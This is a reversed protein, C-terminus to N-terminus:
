TYYAKPTDSFFSPVAVFDGTHISDLAHPFINALYQSFDFMLKCDSQMGSPVSPNANETGM